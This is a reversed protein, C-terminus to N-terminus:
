LGDLIAGAQLLHTLKPTAKGHPVYSVPVKVVLELDM